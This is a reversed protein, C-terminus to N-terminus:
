AEGASSENEHWDNGTVVSREEVLTDVTNNDIGKTSELCKLFEKGVLQRYLSTKGVQSEGLILMGCYPIIRKGEELAKEYAAVVEPGLRLIEPPIIIEAVYFYYFYYNHQICPESFVLVKFDIQM